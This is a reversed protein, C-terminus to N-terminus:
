YLDAMEPQYFVVTQDSATNDINTEAPMQLAFIPLYFTRHIVSVQVQAAVDM